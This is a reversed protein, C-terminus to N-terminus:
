SKPIKELSLVTPRTIFYIFSNNYRLFKGLQTSLLGSEAAEVKVINTFTSRIKEETLPQDLSQSLSILLNYIQLNRNEPGSKSADKSSTPTTPLLSEVSNNTHDRIRTNSPRPRDDAIKQVSVFNVLRPLDNAVPLQSLPKMWILKTDRKWDRTGPPKVVEYFSILIKTMISNVLVSKSEPVVKFKSASVTSEDSKAPSLPLTPVKQNQNQKSHTSIPSEVTTPSRARSIEKKHEPTSPSINSSSKEKNKNESKEKKKWFDFIKGKEPAENNGRPTRLLEANSQTRNRHENSTEGM